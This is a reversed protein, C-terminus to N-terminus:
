VEKGIIKEIKVPGWIRSDYSYPTSGVLFVSGEPVVVERGFGLTEIDILQDNQYDIFAPSVKTGNVFVGENSVKVTDGPLGAIMKIIIRGDEIKPIKEAPFAVVQSRQWSVEKPQEVRQFLFWERHLSNKEIPQPDIGVFYFASFGKFLGVFVAVLAFGTVMYKLGWTLGPRQLAISSM